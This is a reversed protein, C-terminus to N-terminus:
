NHGHPGNKIDLAELLCWLTDHLNIFFQPGRQLFFRKKRAFKYAIIRIIRLNVNYPTFLAFSETCYM